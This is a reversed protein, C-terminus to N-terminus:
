QAPQRRLVGLGEQVALGVALQGASLAGPDALGTRRYRFARGPDVLAVEDRRQWALQGIV